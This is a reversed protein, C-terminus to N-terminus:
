FTKAISAVLTPRGVDKSGTGSVITYQASNANTGVLALGLTAFGYDRAVGLKYDTYNAASYNHIYQRGVHATLTTKPAVEWNGTVDLYASGKSDGKPALGFIAGSTASNLGFYDTLGYNLKVTLWQWTGSAYIEGNNYKRGTSPIGVEAGPYYYYLLGVDANIGKVPEWKYGGYFDMELGAGNNYSNGSVNSNWNGLYFGSSHSYDFGGQVTPQRYTQSIGRFRYDSAVTLNGTFTHEPTAAPAAPAATQALASGACAALVAAIFINKNM